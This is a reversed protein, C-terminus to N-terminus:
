EPKRANWRKVRIANAARYPDDSRSRELLATAEKFHGLEAHCEALLARAAFNWRGNRDYRKVYTSLQEIAANHDRAEFKCVGTWYMAFEAGVQNLMALTQVPNEEIALHRIALYRKTADEFKGLLQDTRIRLMRREPIGITVKQTKPDVQIPVPLSFIMTTAELVQQVAPAVSQASQFQHKPYGWPQLQDVKLTPTAQTLRTLLGTRGSEDNLPDHLVCIEEAPLVSELHKMRESWFESEVIPAVLPEKLFAADIPYPQDSRMALSQLWEPHSVLSELTAPPGPQVLDTSSPIAIGLQLDFLHVRGNLLAGFLWVDSDAGSDASPRVIVSDIRIQRLLSSCVWARDEVTGRGILLLQYIGLPMDPEDGGRLSINRVVYDVVGRIHAIEDGGRSLIQTTIAHTLMADRVHIADRLDYNHVKLRTADADDIWGAPIVSPDTAANKDVMGRWSNLLNVPKDTAAAITYNEPRLQHIASKLLDDASPEGTVTKGNQTNSSSVKRGARPPRPGASRRM